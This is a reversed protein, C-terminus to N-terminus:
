HRTSTVPSLPVPLSNIALCDVIQARAGALGKNRDTAAGNWLSQDFGFQEAVFFAGKGASHANAFAIQLLRAVTGEKEIFDTFKTRGRM